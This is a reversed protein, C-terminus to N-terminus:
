LGVAALAETISTVVAYHGRWTARLRKQRPKLPAKRSTKIELMFTLGARGVLADCVEVGDDEVDCGAQRLADVIERHNADRRKAYRNLTM